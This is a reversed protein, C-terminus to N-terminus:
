VRYLKIFNTGARRLDEHASVFVVQDGANLLGRATLERAVAEGTADVNEGLDTVVPVVGRYM